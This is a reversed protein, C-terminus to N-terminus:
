RGESAPSPEPRPPPGRRRGEWLLYTMGAALLVVPLALLVAEPLGHEALFAFASASAGTPTTGCGGTPCNTLPLLEVVYRDIVEYYNLRLWSHNAIFGAASVTVLYLGAPRLDTLNSWGNRDTTNSQLSGVSLLAGGIPAGTNRDLVWVDLDAGVMPRLPLVVFSRDVWPHDFVTSNSLYGPASAQFSFNASFMESLNAWGGANTTVPVPSGAGPDLDTLLGVADPVPAGSLADVVELDIDGAVQLTLMASVSGAYPVRITTSATSYNARSGVVTLIGGPVVLSTTNFWGASNTAGLELTSSQAVAVGGLPYVGDLSEGFARVHLSPYPGLPLRLHNTSNPLFLDTVEHSRYGPDSATVNLKDPAPISVNAYGALNTTVTRHVCGGDINVSAGPLAAQTFNDYVYVSLPVQSVSCPPPPPGGGSILDPFCNPQPAYFPELVSANMPPGSLVINGGLLNLGICGPFMAWAAPAGFRPGPGGGVDLLSWSNQAPSYLYGDGLANAGTGNWDFGGYVIGVHDYGDWVFAPSARPSPGGNTALPRWTLPSGGFSWLDNTCTLACGGFLLYRDTGNQWIMSSGYEPPPASVQSLETWDFTTLNLSWTDNWIVTASSSGSRYAPEIGGQLLAENGSDNVAFAANERAPPAAGHTVNVWTQNGFYYVWTDNATRQRPLDTLGGFLVAFDRGPVSAFSSNTRPSPSPDLVGVQFVGTTSNYNVTYNTLGGSGEGGFVTINRLHDDVVMAAGEGMFHTTDDDVGYIIYAFGWDYRPADTAPVPGPLAWPGASAALMAGLPTPSAHPAAPAASGPTVGGLTTILFLLVAGVVV